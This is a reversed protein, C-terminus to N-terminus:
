PALRQVKWSGDQGKAFVFRDHFRNTQGQWFEFCDPVIKFGGWHVPYPIVSSPDSYKERLATWERELAGRSEVVRSQPSVAASIQSDRPRSHFYSASQEIPIKEVKGEIRIQRHLPEWFFVVAAFPNEELEKGKRSNYNTYFTVGSRDIMKMLVTRVSPRGDKSCTALCMANPERLDSCEKAEKFWAQFQVFPDSPSTLDQLGLVDTSYPTRDQHCDVEEVSMSRLFHRFSGCSNHVTLVLSCSIKFPFFLLGGEAGTFPRNGM